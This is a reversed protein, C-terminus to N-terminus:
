IISQVNKQILTNLYNKTYKHFHYKNSTEVSKVYIDYLDDRKLASEIGFIENRVEVEICNYGHVWDESWKLNDKYKVMISNVPSEGTSRFCKVGCGWLSISLKSLGNIILLQKIDERQYHPQHFTAWKKSNSEHQLFANFQYINDCISAGNKSSNAWIESHVRTRHESSRGWMMCVELPRSDFEKKTQIPYPEQYNPYDIPLLWNNADKKLLERKFFLTAKNSAVWKDFKKWEPNDKFHPFESTNYGWIHTGSKELDWDWGYESMCVLVYRGLTLLEENFVFNELRTVLVLPIDSKIGAIVNIEPPSFHNNAAASYIM